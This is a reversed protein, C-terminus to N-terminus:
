SAGRSRRSRQSVWAIEDEITEDSRWPSLHLIRLTRDVLRRALESQVADSTASSQSVASWGGHRYRVLVSLFGPSGASFFRLEDGVRHVTYEVAAIKVRALNVGRRVYRGAHGSLQDLVRQAVREDQHGPM